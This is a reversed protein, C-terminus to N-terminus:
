TEKKSRGATSGASEPPTGASESAAASSASKPGDGLVLLGADVLDTVRDSSPDVPGWEGGGLTHGEDDIVVPGSSTNKAQQTM